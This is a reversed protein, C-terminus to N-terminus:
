KKILQKWAANFAKRHHELAPLLFPQAQMKRTGFEVHVAYEATFQVINKLHGIVSSGSNKLFGTDVPVREKAEGEVDFTTKDLIAQADKELDRQLAKLNTTDIRVNSKAM